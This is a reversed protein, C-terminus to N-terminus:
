PRLLWHGSTLSEELIFDIGFHWYEMRFFHRGFFSTKKVLCPIRLNTLGNQYKIMKCGNKSFSSNKIDMSDYIPSARTEVAPDWWNWTPIRTMEVRAGLASSKDDREGGMKRCFIVQDNETINEKVAQQFFDALSLGSLAVLNSTIKFFCTKGDIQEATMNKGIKLGHYHLDSLKGCSVRMEPKWHSHTENMKREKAYQDSYNKWGQESWYKMKWRHFTMQSQRIAVGSRKDGMNANGGESTLGVVSRRRGNKRLLQKGERKSKVHLRNRKSNCEREQLGGLSLEASREKSTGHRAKSSSVSIENFRLASWAAIPCGLKGLMKKRYKEEKRLKM